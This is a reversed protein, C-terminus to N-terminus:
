SILKPKESVTGIGSKDPFYDLKCSATDLRVLKRVFVGSNEKEEFELFGCFIHKETVENEM